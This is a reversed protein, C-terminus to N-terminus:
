HSTGVNNAVQNFTNGLNGGILRAGGVIVIAIAVIILSYEIATAASEDRLFNCFLSRM